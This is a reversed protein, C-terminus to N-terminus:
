KDNFQHRAADAEACKKIQEFAHWHVGRVVQVAWWDYYAAPYMHLRYWSTGTLTTTGDGNDKLDFQGRQLTIHGIVEPHQPQRTIDFTLKKNPQWQTIKEEIIIPGRLECERRAGVGQGKLRSQVPPPVGLKFIWPRPKATIRPFTGIYKWVVRPPANIVVTDAVSTQYNQPSLADGLILLAYLPLLHVSMKRYRELISHAVIAGLYIMLWLLPWVMTLCITGEHLVPVAGALAIISSLLTGIVYKGTPLKRQHWFYGSVAGIVFPVGLSLAFSYFESNNQGAFSRLIRVTLPIVFVCILGALGGTILGIWLSILDKKKQVGEYNVYKPENPNEM